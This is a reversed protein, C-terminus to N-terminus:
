QCNASPPPYVPLRHRFRRTALAGLAAAIAATAAIRTMSGASPEEAFLTGASLTMLLKPVQELANGSTPDSNTLVLRWFRLFNTWAAGTRLRYYLAGWVFVTFVFYGAVAAALLGPARWPELLPVSAAAALWLLARGRLPFSFPALVAAFALAGLLALPASGAALLVLLPYVLSFPRGENFVNWLRAAWIEVKGAM